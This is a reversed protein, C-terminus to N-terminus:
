ACVILFKVDNEYTKSIETLNEQAFLLLGSELLTLNSQWLKILSHSDLKLFDNFYIQIRKDNHIITDIKTRQHENLTSSNAICKDESYQMRNSFEIWKGHSNIYSYFNDNQTKNNRLWVAGFTHSPRHSADKQLSIILSKAPATWSGEVILRPM